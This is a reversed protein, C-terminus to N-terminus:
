ALRMEPCPRARIQARLSSIEKHLLGLRGEASRLTAKLGGWDSRHAAANMREMQDQLEAAGVAGTLSILVHTEARVGGIDRAAIAAILASRARALDADLRDMLETEGDPGAIELLHALRLASAGSHRALRTGSPVVPKRPTSRPAVDRSSRASPYGAGGVPHAAGRYAFRIATPETARATEALPLAGLAAGFADLSLIPKAFVGDAGAAFIADRDARLAFATVALIPITGRKGVVKRAARIVDLGSLLPLQIDLIALDFDRHILAARAAVGDDVFTCRAGLQRLMRGVLMQNTRNDEAILVDLDSLDPLAPGSGAMDASPMQLVLAVSAGVPRGAGDKINGVRLDAGIQDALGKAIHLGLGSGPQVVNDPRGGFSFLRDLAAQSFGPGQDAVTFVLEGRGYRGVSLTIEGTAAYKLANDLLNSLIRDLLLPEIGLEDPLDAQMELRLTRGEAAAHGGWRRQLDGVFQRLDLPGSKARACAEALGSTEGSVVGLAETVLRGLTEGAVRVRELQVRSDADLDGPDVLALGGVVDGLASRIDHSILSLRKGQVRDGKFQGHLIAVM